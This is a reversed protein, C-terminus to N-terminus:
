ESDFANRKEKPKDMVLKGIITANGAKEEAMAVKDPVDLQQSGTYNVGEHTVTGTQTVQIKM